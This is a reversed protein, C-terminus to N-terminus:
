RIVRQAQCRERANQENEYLRQAVRHDELAQKYSDLEQPLWFNYAQGHTATLEEGRDSGWGGGWEEGRDSGWGGGGWGWGLV